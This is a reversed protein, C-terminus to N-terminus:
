LMLGPPGSADLIAFTFTPVYKGEEGVTRSVIFSSAVRLSLSTTVMRSMDHFNKQIGFTYYLGATKFKPFVGSVM